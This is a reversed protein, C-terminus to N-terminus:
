KMKKACLQVVRYLKNAMKYSIEAQEWDSQREAALAEKMVTEAAVTETRCSDRHLTAAEEQSSFAEQRAAVLSAPPGCAAAALLCLVALATLIRHNM